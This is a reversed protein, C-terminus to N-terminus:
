IRSLLEAKKQNYEAETLAGQTYLRHLQELTQPVDTKPTTGMTPSPPYPEARTVADSNFLNKFNNLWVTFYNLDRPARYIVVTEAIMDHLTQRRSTFISMLYGVMMIAASLFTGAFRIFSQTINLREGKETTVALGMIAKGPTAQLESAEFVPKYILHALVGGVFPIIHNLALVPIILIFFDIMVAAFRVWFGAYRVISTDQVQDAVQITM